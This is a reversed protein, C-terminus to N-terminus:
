PRFQRTLRCSFFLRHFYTGITWATILHYELDKTLYFFKKYVEMINQYAEHASTSPSNLLQGVEKRGMKEDLNVLLKSDDDIYASIDGSVVEPSSQKTIMSPSFVFYTNTSVFKGDTRKRERFGVVTTGNLYDLAPHIARSEENVHDSIMNIVRDLKSDATETNNNISM